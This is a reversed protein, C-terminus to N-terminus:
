RKRRYGPVICTTPLQNIPHPYVHVEAGYVEKISETTIVEELSGQSHIGKHELMILRDCYQAALNLDHLAALAALGKEMCMEKVLDLTEVQYKLDLHSTPEDLLLVEAEQTLARAITLRQREGGSLQGVKREWLHDTQTKIMAWWAFDKDRKGEQQLFKLHPTRGMLVVEFATFLEPLNASQPVVAVKRALDRRSMRGIEQGNILIQGSQLPLLKTIGKILTSKGSGNPGVLGVLEGNKVEFSVSNLIVRKGYALTVERLVLEAMGISEGTGPVQGRGQM